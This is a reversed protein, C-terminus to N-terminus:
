DSESVITVLQDEKLKDAYRRSILGYKIGKNLFSFSNFICMGTIFATLPHSWCEGPWEIGGFYSAVASLAISVGSGWCSADTNRRYALNLCDSRDHYNYYRTLEEENFEFSTVNLVDDYWQCLEDETRFTKHSTM